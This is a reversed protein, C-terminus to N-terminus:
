ECDDALALGLTKYDDIAGYLVQDSTARDLSKIKYHFYPYHTGEEAWQPNQTRTAGERLVPSIPGGKERGNESPVLNGEEHQEEAPVLRDPVGYNVYNMGVDGGDGHKMDIPVLAHLPRTHGGNNSAYRDARLLWANAGPLGMLLVRPNDVQLGV